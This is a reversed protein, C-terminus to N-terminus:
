LGLAKPKNSWTISDNNGGSVTDQIKYCKLNGADSCIGWFYLTANTVTSGYMLGPKFGLYAYKKYGANDISLSSSPYYSANPYHENVYTDYWPYVKWVQGTKQYNVTVSNSGASLTIARAAPTAWGSVSSFELTYNGTPINAVTTGSSKWGSNYTSSCLRWQASSPNLTIFLTSAQIPRMLELLEVLNSLYNDEGELSAEYDFSVLPNLLLIGAKSCNIIGDDTNNSIINMLDQQIAYVKNKLTNTRHITNTLSFDIATSEDSDILGNDLICNHWTNALSAMENFAFSAENGSGSNFIIDNWQTFSLWDFFEEFTGKLGQYIKVLKRIKLCADILPNIGEIFITESPMLAMFTYEMQDTSKVARPWDSAVDDYFYLLTKSSELIAQYYELSQQQIGPMTYKIKIYKIDYWDSYGFDLSIDLWNGPMSGVAETLCSIPIEYAQTEGKIEPLASILKIKSSGSGAYLAPEGSGNKGKGFIYVQLNTMGGPLDTEPLVFRYVAETGSTSWSPNILLGGDNSWESEAAVGALNNNWCRVDVGGAKMTINAAEVITCLSLLCCLLQFSKLNRM